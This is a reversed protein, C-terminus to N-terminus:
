KEWQTKVHVNWGYGGNNFWNNEYVYAEKGAKKMKSAYIEAEWKYMFTSDRVVYQSSEQISWCGTVTISLILFLLVIYKM